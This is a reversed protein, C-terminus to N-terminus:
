GNESWALHYKEPLHGGEYDIRGQTRLGPRLLMQRVMEPIMEAGVYRGLCVHSGYGFHFQHYWNRGPKFEDPDDFALEDFMASQTVALVYGGAPIVTERDTGRAILAETAAQRFLYPSIPVFRLAEWVINDFETTDDQKVITQAKVLWESNELLYQLTQAVAQSTTEIAGILLGGANIGVRKLDFEVAKSFSSRLMRTVIDDTLKEDKKGMLLRILKRIGYWFAFLVNKVQEAKVALIRRAMLELIYTGLKKSVREHQEIIHRREAETHDDFPQNYFTDVQNWYSWEILDERDIGTLGFYDQVLTAPVMRCYGGIVEMKGNADDLLGASIRKVMARVQSLDNRNLFGQMISKERTHFADDDHSMLYSDMKPEYLAVTFVKAQNLVDICDDLRMVLTAKPTKLIPRQERMAKFFALPELDIWSRVLNFKENDDAADLQVLYDTM